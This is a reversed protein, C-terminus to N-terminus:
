LCQVVVVVVVVISRISSGTTSQIVVKSRINSSSSNCNCISHIIANVTYQYKIEDVESFALITHQRETIHTGTREIKM